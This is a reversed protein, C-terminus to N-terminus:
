KALDDLFESGPALGTILLRDRARTAAVYLLQRETSVVEDLEFEDAVEAVRSELPLVGEDCAMLVVARFELGKALHMISTLATGEKGSLSASSRMPLGAVECAARARPLQDPSRVFVGIEEPAIGDKLLQNFFAAAYDQEAQETDFLRIEPEPGEFVSVTARRDDESGDVDRVSAPMLRDAMRRIQHSTRYNVKLIQARGRVDIGLGKWSFPQQFIRQGLDGAFFLADPGERAIAGLFRLEPVALDQAEDVIIHDFPKSADGAHLGTVAAFLGARTMLRRERLKRKVLGFVQWLAERQVKGLRNKRGM